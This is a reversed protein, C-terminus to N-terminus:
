PPPPKSIDFVPRLRVMIPEGAYSVGGCWKFGNWQVVRGNHRYIFPDFFEEQWAEGTEVRCYTVRCNPTM